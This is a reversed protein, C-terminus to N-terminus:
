LIAALIKGTVGIVIVIITGVLFPANDRLSNILRIRDAEIKWAMYFAYAAPNPALPPLCIGYCACYIDNTSIVTNKNSAKYNRIRNECDFLYSGNVYLQFEVISGNAIISVDTKTTMEAMYSINVAGYSINVAIARTFGATTIGNTDLNAYMM